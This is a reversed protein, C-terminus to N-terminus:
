LIVSVKDISGFDVEPKVELTVLQQDSDYGARTVRGIMIGEPYIGIGSTILRDGESIEVTNDLMFGTLKGSESGEIIGLMNGTGEVYFSISSSEDIIPIIKSWNDDTAAVRGVLGRGCIVIDDVQINSETGKDIVFSNTWNSSDLSIINATVIDMGGQIFDYNLANSLEELRALEKSSFTLQSIENRLSENEQKLEENEAMLKRYSFIGSVNEKISTGLSTMPKEILMYLRNLPGLRTAGGTARTLGLVLIALILLVALISILKHEKIWKFFM